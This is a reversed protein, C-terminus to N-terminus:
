VTKFFREKIRAKEEPGIEVNRPTALYVGATIRVLKGDLVCVMGSVFDIIRQSTAKDASKLSVIVPTGAKFKEAVRLVENLFRPEFIHVQFSPSRVARLPVTREARRSAYSGRSVKRVAVAGEEPYSEDLYDREEPKKLGLFVLAKQWLDEM